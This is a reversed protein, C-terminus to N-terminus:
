RLIEYSAKGKIGADPRTFNYLKERRNLKKNGKVDSTYSLLQFFKVDDTKYSREGNLKPTLPTIYVHRIGTDEM